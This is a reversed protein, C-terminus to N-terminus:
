GHDEFRNEPEYKQESLRSTGALQQETLQRDTIVALTQELQNGVFALHHYEINLGIVVQGLILRRISRWFEARM